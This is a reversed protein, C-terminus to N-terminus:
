GATMEASQTEVPGLSPWVDRSRDSGSKGSAAEIEAPGLPHLVAAGHADGGQSLAAEQFGEPDPNGIFVLVAGFGSLWLLRGGDAAQGAYNRM